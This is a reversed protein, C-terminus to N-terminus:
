LTVVGTYNTGHFTASVAIGGKYHV